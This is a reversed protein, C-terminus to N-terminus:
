FDNKKGSGIANFEKEVKANEEDREAFQAKTAVIAERANKQLEIIKAAEDANVSRVTKFTIKNWSIDGKKMAESSFRTLVTPAKVTKEYSLLSYMSSGRLNLQYVEGDFLVYLIRTDELLSRKKGDTGTVMYKSKLEAPTGRDVEKRDCFLPIIEDQSDFVPSSTFKEGDFMKLQHRKFFITGEFEEGIDEKEWEKKGTEENVEEGPRETFFEGAAQIVNIKKNRGSGVEETKDQSVFGIRPLQISSSGEETPYSDALQALVEDSAKKAIVKSNNKNSM